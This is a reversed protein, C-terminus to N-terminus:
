TRRRPAARLRQLLAPAARFNTRQLRALADDLDLYGADGAMAIVALTGAIVLGRRGAAQRAARDDLLVLDARLVLALAVAAAEGRGLGPEVAAQLPDPHVTVWAPLALGWARVLPPAASHTLEDCVATPLHITGFLEPLVDHCDILILYRLPSTDALVVM